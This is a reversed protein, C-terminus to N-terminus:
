EGYTFYGGAALFDCYEKVADKMDTFGGDYGAALLHSTDAETFSQYKGKLVEPFPRYEIKGKGMADIVAQAAENYTHAKGTGCNFIGSPGKKRWFWLNVKVVDKVYIFDRKQEGDGYGDYGEFLRAAGTEEIQNYLQYFISAMKGKHHEQPGYVNFYRLGVVSSRADPLIQRV